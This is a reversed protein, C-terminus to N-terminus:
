QDGESEDLNWKRRLLEVLEIDRVAIAKRITIRQESSMLENALALWDLHNAELIVDIDRQLMELESMAM